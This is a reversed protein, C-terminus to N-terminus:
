VLQDVPVPRNVDVLLAVLVCRQRAHGIDLRRDDLRVEVGGLLRFEVAMPQVREGPPCCVRSALAHHTIQSRESTRRRNVRMRNEAVLPVLSPAGVLEAIAPHLRLDLRRYDSPDAGRVDAMRSWLLEREAATLTRSAAMRAAGVELIERLGLADDLEARTVAQAGVSGATPLEDAL